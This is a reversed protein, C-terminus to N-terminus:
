QKANFLTQVESASIVRNYTRFNDMKGNYKKISNSNTGLYTATVSSGWSFSNNTATEFLVGDLYIMALNGNVTVTLMHWQNNLYSAFSSTTFRPSYQSSTYYELKSASTIFYSYKYDGSSSGILFQDNRGTKFWLNVSYIDTSPLFSNTVMMFSNGDFDLSRGEGSPTDTTTTTGAYIAEFNGTYDMTGGDDFNFFCYLGDGVVVSNDVYTASVTVISSNANGNVSVTTSVPGHIKSRDIIATVLTGSGANTNGSMPDLTLWDVSPTSITWNLVTGSSGVNRVLFTKNTATEGFDLSSESLELIATGSDSSSANFTITSSSGGGNITVATSVVGTIKSRDITATVMTSAGGATNGSTPSLTLWDVQINSCNWNLSTGTPGVNMVYFALSTSSTGFDLSTESLQLRPGSTGSVSVSIPLVITQDDTSRVTINASTNQTILSRDINVVVTAEQGGQLNGTSPTTTLWNLSEIIEWSMPMSTSANIIKFNLSSFGTGFDLYEVNLRFGTVMPKMMMDGSSIGGSVITINKTNSEFGSKVGQVTYQGPDLTNFEYRGDSGTVASLGTPSLSINVGQIPENTSANTVIGQIRGYSVEKVCSVMLCLFAVSLIGLAIKRTRM